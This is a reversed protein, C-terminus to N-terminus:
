WSSTSFNRIRGNFKLTVDGTYNPKASMEFNVMEDILGWIAKLVIFEHETKTLDTQM